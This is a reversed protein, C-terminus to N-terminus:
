QTKVEVPFIGKHTLVATILGSCDSHGEWMGSMALGTVPRQYGQFESM